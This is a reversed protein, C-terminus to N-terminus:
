QVHRLLILNKQKNQVCSTKGFWLNILILLPLKSSSIHPCASLSFRGGTHLKHVNSPRSTATFQVNPSSGATAQTLLGTAKDSSWLRRWNRPVRVADTACPCLEPDRETGRRGIVTKPLSNAGWHICISKCTNKSHKDSIWSASQSPMNKYLRNARPLVVVIKAAYM